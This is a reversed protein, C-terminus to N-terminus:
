IGFYEIVLITIDDKHKSTDAFDGVKHLIANATAEPSITELNELVEQLRIIGFMSEQSDMAEIVGDTVLVLEDGPALTISENTITINDFFGLATAHTTAFKEVGKERSLVFMPVHGANSFVVQGTQLDMIGLIITIFNSELNNNILFRNLQKLIQDPSSYNAAISRLLTTVMTMTMAAAIGKGVVDAIGFCFRNEDILFYDFLDGGIEGAPQLVGFPSVNRLKMKPDYNAPILNRQITSAFMVENLIRNKEETVVQLNGIYDKLSARMKDYADALVKIEYTRSTSTLSTNLDGTGVLQISDVLEELPDNISKTRAYIVAAIILFSIISSIIVIALIAKRDAFLERHPVAIVLSWHNSPLTQYHIWADTPQFQGKLHIFGTANNVLKKGLARLHPNELQEAVDFITYNMSLSDSPHAVITGNYSVLFAYGTKKVKIPLVINRLNDMPIDMRLIGMPKNQEYIPISYSCVVQQSGERDYWPDSWFEKKTLYPVQYWDNYQYDATEIEQTRFQNMQLTYVRPDDDSRYDPAVCVSALFNNSKLMHEIFVEFDENELHGHTYIDVLGWSLVKIKSLEKDILQVKEGALNGIIERANDLMVRSVLHNTVLVSTFYILVLLIFTYSIIQFALTKPNKRSRM